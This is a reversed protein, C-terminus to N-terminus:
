LADHLREDKLVRTYLIPSERRKVQEKLSKGFSFSLQRSNARVLTAVIVLEPWVLSFERRSELFIQAPEFEVLVCSLRQSRLLTEPWVLALTQVRPLEWVRKVRAKSLCQPRVQWVVHLHLRGSSRNMCTTIVCYHGDLGLTVRSVAMYVFWTWRYRGELAM